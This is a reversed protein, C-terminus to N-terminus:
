KGKYEYIGLVGEDSAVINQLVGQRKACSVKVFGNKEAAKVSPINDNRIYEYAKDYKIGLERLFAGVLVNGLGKGREDPSIYLSNFVVDKNTAFKNRGGGKTVIGYGVIKDYRAMYIVRYGGRIYDLTERIKRSFLKEYYAMPVYFYDFLKTKYEYFDIGEIQKLYKLKKDRIMNFKQKLM